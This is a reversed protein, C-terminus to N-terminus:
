ILNNNIRHSSGASNKCNRQRQKKEEEKESRLVLSAFLYFTFFLIFQSWLSLSEVCMGISHTLAARPEIKFRFRDAVSHNIQWQFQITQNTSQYGNEPMHTTTEGAGCMMIMCKAFASRMCHYM